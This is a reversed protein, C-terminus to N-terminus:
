MTGNPTDTPAPALDNEDHTHGNYITRMDSLTRANAPVNDRIDGTVEVLPCTFLASQATVNFAGAADVNVDGPSEILVSGDAKLHIVQGFKSYVAVEGAALGSKRYRKDDLAIVIAHARHGFPSVIVAEAGFDPVGTFGYNQFREVKDLTEDKLATVQVVQISAGDNVATIVARGVMMAVRRRLPATLKEIVRMLEM